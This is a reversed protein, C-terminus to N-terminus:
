RRSFRLGAFLTRPMAPEYFRGRTANVLVASAYRADLLNEVGLVPAARWGDRLLLGDSGVRLGIAHWGPAQETGADNVVIASAAAADLTAFWAGRRTTVWGQLQRAPSGPVTNGDYVASGVTYTLFRYRAATVAVGADTSGLQVRASAEIGRRATRGANRFARRGPADPVDFPVLEDTSRADFVAVDVWTRSGVVGRVGAELTRTRQPALAGNLGASGDAQTTLETITPTEFATNLTAYLSM